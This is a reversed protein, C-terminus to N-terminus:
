AHIFENLLLAFHWINKQPTKYRSVVFFDSYQIAILLQHKSTGTFHLAPKEVTVSIAMALCSNCLLMPMCCNNGQGQLFANSHNAQVIKSWLCTIDLIGLFTVLYFEKLHSCLIDSKIPLINPAANTYHLILM